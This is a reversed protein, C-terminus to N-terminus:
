HGSQYELSAIAIAIVFGYRIRRFALLPSQWKTHIKLIERSQGEVKWASKFYPIKAKSLSYLIELYSRHPCGARQALAQKQPDVM